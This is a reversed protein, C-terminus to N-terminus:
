LYKSPIRDKPIKSIVSSDKKLSLGLKGNAEDFITYYNRLFADGLVWFDNDILQIAL